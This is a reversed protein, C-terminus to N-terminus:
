SEQGCLLFFRKESKLVQFIKSTWVISDESSKKPEVIQRDVIPDAYLYISHFYGLNIKKYNNQDIIKNFDGQRGFFPDNIRILLTGKGCQEFIKKYSRKDKKNHICNKIKQITETQYDDTSGSYSYECYNQCDGNLERTKERREWKRYLSTEEFWEEKGNSVAVVCDPSDPYRIHNALIKKERFFEQITLKELMRKFHRDM